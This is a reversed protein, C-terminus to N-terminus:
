GLSSRLRGQGDRTLHCVPVAGGPTRRERRACLDIPCLYAEDAPEGEHGRTGWRVDPEPGDLERVFEVFDDARDM